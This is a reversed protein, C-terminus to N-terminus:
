SRTCGRALVPLKLTAEIEKRPDSREGGIITVPTTDAFQLIKARPSLCTRVRYFTITDPNSVMALMDLMDNSTWPTGQMIPFIVPFPFSVHNDIVMISFEGGYGATVDRIYAVHESDPSFHIQGVVHNFPPSERGDIVAMWGRGKSAFYALRSGDPSFTVRAVDQYPGTESGDHYVVSQGKKKASFAFHRGDKSMVISTSDINDFPGIRKGDRILFWKGKTSAAYIYHEGDESFLIPSNAVQEYWEQRHGHLVAAFRAAGKQREGLFYCIENSVPRFVPVLIATDRAYEHGDVVLLWTQGIRATFMVHRSDESFVITFIDEFPESAVGDIVAVARANMTVTNPDQHETLPDPIAIYAHRTGDNSFIVPSVIDNFVQQPVGDIVARTRKGPTAVHLNAEKVEKMRGFLQDVFLGAIYQKEDGAFDQAVFAFHKGTPDFTFGERIASYPGYTKGDIVMVCDKPPGSQNTGPDPRSQVAAFAYRAGDQSWVVPHIISAFTGVPRGNILMEGGGEDDDINEAFIAFRSRSPSWSATRITNRVPSGDPSMALIRPLPIKALVMNISRREYVGKMTGSM